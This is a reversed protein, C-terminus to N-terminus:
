RSIRWSVGGDDWFPRGAERRADVRTLGIDKLMRDDMAALARRQRALEQWRLLVLLGRSLAAGLGATLGGAAPRHRVPARVYSPM